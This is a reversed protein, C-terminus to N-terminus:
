EDGLWAQPRWSAGMRRSSAIWTLDSSEFSHKAPKYFLSLAIPTSQAFLLSFFLFLSTRAIAFSWRPSSGIAILRFSGRHRSPPPLLFSRDLLGATFGPLLFFLLFSLSFQDFMPSLAHPSAPFRLFFAFRGHLPLYALSHSLARPPCVLSFSLSIAQEALEVRGTRISRAHAQRGRRADHRRRGRTHARSQIGFRPQTPQIAQVGCNGPM